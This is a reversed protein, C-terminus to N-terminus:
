AWDESAFTRTWSDHALDPYETYDVKGGAAKLAATIETSRVPKVTTDQAVPFVCRSTPSGRLRRRIAGAASPSPPPLGTPGAPSCIGRASDAWRCAGGVYVRDPDVTNGDAVLGDVELVMRLEATPEASFTHRPASWDVEVWKHDTPCQPFLAYAPQRNKELWAMLPRAGHKLQIENSAASAPATCSSWPCSGAAGGRTSGVAGQTGRRPPSTHILPKHIMHVPEAAQTPLVLLAALAAVPLVPNM